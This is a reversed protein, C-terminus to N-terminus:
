ALFEVYIELEVIQLTSALWNRYLTVSLGFLGASCDLTNNMFRLWTFQVSSREAQWGLIWDRVM